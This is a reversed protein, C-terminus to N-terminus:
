ETVMTDEQTSVVDARGAVVAQRQRPPQDRLHGDDRHGSESPLPEGSQEVACTRSLKETPLRLVWPPRGIVPLLPCGAEQPRPEASGRRWM